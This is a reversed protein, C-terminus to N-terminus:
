FRRSITLRGSLPELPHFHVDAVGVQPEGRLRDIYFFQMADAKKDLLNYGALGISWGGAWAYHVEASWEGYGSGWVQGQPTPAAACSTLGSFDIRVAADACSGSSLPYGSLYRYALGGSWPGLNRVYVDLSGTATPANPLYSGLHGTGDDYASTYRAHNASYYYEARASLRTHFAM